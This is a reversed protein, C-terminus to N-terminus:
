VRAFLVTGILHRNVSWESRLEFADTEHYEKAYRRRSLTRNPGLQIAPKASESVSRRPQYPSDM